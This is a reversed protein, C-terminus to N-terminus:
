YQYLPVRALLLAIQRNLGALYPEIEADSLTALQQTVDQQPLASPRPLLQDDYVLGAVDTQLRQATGPAAALEAFRIGAKDAMLDALDFGSYTQSDNLEKQLGMFEALKDGAFLSILASTVFHQALDKRRHLTLELRKAPQGFRSGLRTFELLVPDAAYMALSVLAATNEMPPSGGAGSRQRALEFAPSMLGLLPYRNGRLGQSIPELHALYREVLAADIRDLLLKEQHSAVSDMMAKNNRYSIQLQYDRVRVDQIAEWTARLEALSAHHLLQETARQELWRLLPAPLPVYGLRLRELNLTKGEPQLTAEFNLYRRSLDVPLEVSGRLTGRREDLSVTVGQLATLKLTQMGYIAATNLEQEGLKIVRISDANDTPRQQYLLRQLRNIDEQSLHPTPLAMPGTALALYYIAVPSLLLALLACGFLLKFLRGM